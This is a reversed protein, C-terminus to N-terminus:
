ELLMVEQASTKNLLYRLLSSLQDIWIIHDLDYMKDLEIAGDLM